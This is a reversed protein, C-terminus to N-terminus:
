QPLNLQNESRFMEEGKADNAVLVLQWKGAAIGPVAGSYSGNGNAALTLKRDDRDSIPHMLTATVTLDSIPKGDKDAFDSSLSFTGDKTRVTHASVKWGRKDQAAAAEIQHEYLQGAEYSSATVVGSFSHIAEYAMYGNIAFVVGFFGILIMLFKAGTLKGKTSAAATTAM